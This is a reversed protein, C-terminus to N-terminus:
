ALPDRSSRAPFGSRSMWALALADTLVGMADLLVGWPMNDSGM